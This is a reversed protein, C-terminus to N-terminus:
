EATGEAAQFSPMMGTERAALQPWTVLNPDIPSSYFHWMYSGSIAKSSLLHGRKSGKEMWRFPITLIISSAPRVM